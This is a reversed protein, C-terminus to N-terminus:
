RGTCMVKSIMRVFFNGKKKKKVVRINKKEFKELKRERFGTEVRKKKMRDEKCQSLVRLPVGVEKQSQNFEIMPFQVSRKKTRRRSFLKEKDIKWKVTKEESEDENSIELIYESIKKENKGFHENYFYHNAEFKGNQERFCNEDFNQKFFGHFIVHNLSLRMKSKGLLGDLLDLLNGPLTGYEERLAEIGFFKKRLFKEVDINLVGLILKGFTYADTSGGPHGNELLGNEFQHDFNGLERKVNLHLHNHHETLYPFNFIAFSNDEQRKVLKLGNEAILSYKFSNIAKIGHYISSIALAKERVSKLTSKEGKQFDISIEFNEFILYFNKKNEFTADLNLIFNKTYTNKTSNKYVHIQNRLIKQKFKKGSLIKKPYVQAIKKKGTGLERVRLLMFEKENLIITANKFCYDEFSKYSSIKLTELSPISIQSDIFRKIRKDLLMESTIKQTRSLSKSMTSKVRQRM